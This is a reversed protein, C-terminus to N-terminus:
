KRKIKGHSHCPERLGGGQTTRRCYGGFMSRRIDGEIGEFFVFPSSSCLISVNGEQQLFVSCCFFFPKEKSWNSQM